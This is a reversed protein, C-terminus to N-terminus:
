QFVVRFQECVVPMRENPVRGIRSCERAFFATHDRRWSALTGDGEGELRAFDAAVDEFAVVQVDTTEIICLPQQTWTTVISLDGTKPMAKGGGEYTWALSASARKVGKLVLGALEASISEDDGFAFAELFRSRDLPGHSQEAATWFPLYKPPLTM